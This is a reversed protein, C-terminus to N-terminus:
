DYHSILRVHFVSLALVRVKNHDGSLRTILKAITYFSMWQCERPVCQSLASVISLLSKSYPHATAEAFLSQSNPQTNKKM